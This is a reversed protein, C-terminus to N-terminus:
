PLRPHFILLYSAYRVLVDKICSACTAESHTFPTIRFVGLGGRIDARAKLDSDCLARRALAVFVRM